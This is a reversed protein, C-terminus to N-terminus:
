VNTLDDKLRKLRTEWDENSYRERFSEAFIPFAFPTLKSPKRLIIEHSEIREFAQQMRGRELQFDYVEDYAQRYLLNEPEYDQFVSFFLSANAQLHKTKMSKGPYGNFILGSISAIDRFRRRAM